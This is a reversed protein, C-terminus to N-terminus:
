SVLLVLRHHLQSVNSSVLGLTTHRPFKSHTQESAEIANRAHMMASELRGVWQELLALSGYYRYEQIPFLLPCQFESLVEMAEAYLRELENELVFWPYSLWANTQVNPRIRQAQLSKRYAEVASEINGLAASSEARQLWAQALDISDQHTQFYRDLLELANAHLGVEALTAAQVRLYQSRNSARARALRTNFDIQDANKWTQKRFWDRTGM